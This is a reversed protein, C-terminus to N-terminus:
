PLHHVNISLICCKSVSFSMQWKYSWRHLKNIDSQLSASDCSNRIERYLICDDAFLCIDSDIGLVIDNIYILFLLPNLVTGQPIGSLVPLWSSQAGNVFNVRQYRDSLFSHLWNQVTGCIAYQNLKILLRCHPASDFAKSFDFIAIDTRFGRDLSKAWDNICSLLQTECSFGPRFGHERPTFIGHYELHKCINSYIIHEMTKSCVSTLSIPRYNTALSKSGKSHLPFINGHRWDALVKGNQYSQNFIFTLLPAVEFSVEKLVRPPLEDPGTSKSGDLNALLKRVGPATIVFNEMKPFEMAVHYWILIRLLLFLDFTIISVILKTLMQMCHTTTIMYCQFVSPIVDTLNLSVVFNVLIPKSIVLKRIIDALHKMNPSSQTLLLMGQKGIGKQILWLDEQLFQHFHKSFWLGRLLRYLSLKVLEM